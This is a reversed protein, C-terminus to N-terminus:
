AAKTLITEVEDLCRLCLRLSNGPEGSYGIKLHLLTLGLAAAARRLPLRLEEPAVEIGLRFIAMGRRAERELLTYREEGLFGLCASAVRRAANVFETMSFASNPTCPLAM